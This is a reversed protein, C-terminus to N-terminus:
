WWRFYWGLMQEGFFLALAMGGCLFPAFAFHEQGTKRHTAMLWIGYGGGAVIALFVALLTTKCGLFLGAAAMLRVDGGGFSGPVVRCLLWMPVSACVAGLLREALPLGGWPLLLAAVGCLATAVVLLDPIYQTEADVLAIALQVALFLLALAGEAGLGFRYRCGLAAVGGVLAAGLRWARGTAGAGCGALYCGVAGAGFFLVAGALVWLLVPLVGLIGLM